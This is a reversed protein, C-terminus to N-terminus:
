AQYQGAAARPRSVLDAHQFPDGLDQPAARRAREGDNRPAGDRQRGIRRMESLGHVRDLPHPAVKSNVLHELGVRHAHEFGTQVPHQSEDGAAPQHPRRVRQEVVPRQPVEQARFQIEVPNRAAEVLLM